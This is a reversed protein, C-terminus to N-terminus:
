AQRAPNGVLREGLARLLAAGDGSWASGHMCALTTPAEGALHEILQMTNTSHSFYDMPQRFAESNELIDQTTLAAAGTGGQTFLDGCFLTRSLTDMLFGTEWGHPLHPADLWKVARRGLSLAAGDALALAPRDAVDNVSVMAAVRSCLPVAHPAVALWENLSGCEDAEFHSLALFRLHEAPMVHGVAERVLPFMKRPGTHFLLPQEDVVLYQNFSFGGPVLNVPTNIRYVGDAIEEVNTGASLNTIAM